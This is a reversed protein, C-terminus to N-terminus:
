RQLTFLVGDESEHHQKEKVGEELDSLLVPSFSSCLADSLTRVSQTITCVHYAIQISAYVWYTPFIIVLARKSKDFWIVQNFHWISSLPVRFQLWCHGLLNKFWLCPKRSPVCPTSCFLFHFVDNKAIADTWSKAWVEWVIFACSQSKLVAFCREFVTKVLLRMLHVITMENFYIRFCLWKRALTCNLYRTTDANGRIRM